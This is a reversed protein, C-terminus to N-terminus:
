RHSAFRRGAPGPRAPAAGIAAGDIAGPGRAPCALLMRADVVAYGEDHAIVPNLDIEAIEPHATAIDSLRVMLDVLRGRDVAPLGRFGDLVARGAIEGLMEAADAARLPLARFVVDRLAEVFVGGVGFMMVRGYQPDTTVGLIVEVGRRAMPAVLVGAIEADPRNRRVEDLLAAMGEAIAADGRVGLRVGGVDSKHLVDKSVVKLAVPGRRLAGDLTGIEAASRLVAHPPM